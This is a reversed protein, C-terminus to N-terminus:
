SGALVTLPDDHLPKWGLDKRARAASFRLADAIPGMRERAHEVTISITSGRGLVEAVERATPGVGAVGLHVVGARANLAAAYLTAIDDV